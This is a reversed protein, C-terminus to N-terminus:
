EAICPSLLNAYLSQMTCNRTCFYVVHTELLCRRINLKWSINWWLIPCSINNCGSLTIFFVVHVTFYRPKNVENKYCHEEWAYLVHKFHTGHMKLSIATHQMTNEKV